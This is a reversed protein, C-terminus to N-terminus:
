RGGIYCHYEEPTDIDRIVGEDETEMELTDSRHAHVVEKAGADLPANLLEPFLERSFLVPHGRRGEYRPVVILKRSGYFLEIMEDVLKPNLFPHDVLHVLIGDVKEWQLAQIATVLSSLQGRAYDENVVVTVPLHQIEAQIADANHGLIVLVKGVRSAQLASVIREIFTQGDVQLLAKPRGMRSSEGAALVVAVIMAIRYGLANTRSM